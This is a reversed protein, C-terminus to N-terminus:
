CNNIQAEHCARSFLTCDSIIHNLTCEEYSCECIVDLPEFDKKFHRTYEATFAHRVTYRLATCFSSRSPKDKIAAKWLPHNNGDPPKLLSLRYTHSTRPKLHWEWVWQEFAEARTKQKEIDDNTLQACEQEARFKAQCFGRLCSDAPTYEVSISAHAFLSLINNVVHVFNLTHEQIACLNLNSIGQIASQSRSLIIFKHAERDHKLYSLIAQSDLSIGFADVDYQSVGEGLKYAQDYGQGERTRGWACPIVAAAAGMFKGDHRGKNTIMGVMHVLAITPDM